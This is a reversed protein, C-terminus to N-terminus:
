NYAVYEVFFYLVDRQCTFKCTKEMFSADSLNQCTSCDTM